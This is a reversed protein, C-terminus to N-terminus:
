LKGKYTRVCKDDEWLKITKDASASLSIGPRKEFAELAWVSLTHGTLLLATINPETLYAIPWIIVSNDWSGSLLKKNTKDVHLCSVSIIKNFYLPFHVFRENQSPEVLHGTRSQQLRRHIWREQWRLAAM